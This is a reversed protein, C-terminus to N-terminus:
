ACCNGFSVVHAGSKAKHSFIRRDDDLLASKEVLVILQQGPVNSHSFTETIRLINPLKESCCYVAPSCSACATCEEHANRNRLDFAACGTHLLPAARM